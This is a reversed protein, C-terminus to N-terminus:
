HAGGRSIPDEGLVWGLEWWLADNKSEAVRAAKEAAEIDTDLQMRWPEGLADAEERDAAIRARLDAYVDRLAFVQAFMESVRDEVSAGGSLAVPALAGHMSRLYVLDQSREKLVHFRMPEPLDEQKTKDPHVFTALKLYLKRCARLEERETETQPEVVTILGAEGLWLQRLGDLEGAIESRLPLPQGSARAARALGVQQKLYEIERAAVTFRGHAENLRAERGLSSLGADEIRRRADLWEGLAGTFLDRYHQKVPASPLAGLWSGFLHRALDIGTDAPLLRVEAGPPLTMRAKEREQSRAFFVLAPDSYPFGSVADALGDFGSVLSTELALGAACLALAGPRELPLKLDHVACARLVGDLWALGMAARLTDHSEFGRREVRFVALGYPAKGWHNQEVAERLPGSLGRVIGGAWEVASAAVASLTEDGSAAM